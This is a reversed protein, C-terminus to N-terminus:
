RGQAERIAKILVEKDTTNFHAAGIKNALTMLSQFDMTELDQTEPLNGECHPCQRLNKSPHSIIEKGCHPCPRRSLNKTLNGSEGTQANPPLRDRIEKLLNTVAISGTMLVDLTQNIKWYWCFVERLVWFLLVLIGITLIAGLIISAVAGDTNYM